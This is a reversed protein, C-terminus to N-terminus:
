SINKCSGLMLNRIQRSLFEDVGPLWAHFPTRFIRLRPIFPDLTLGIILHLTKELFLVLRPSPVYRYIKNVSDCITTHLSYDM